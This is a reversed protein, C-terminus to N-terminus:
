RARRCSSASPRAAGPPVKWLGGDHSEGLLSDRDIELVYLTGDRGFDLDIVNTFGTAYDTREGTDPSGRPVGQRRRSRSRSAPSSASTTPATPARSSARRSPRCRSPPAAGSRAHRRQPVPQLVSLRRRPALPAAAHQRRRRGRAPAPRRGARRGRQQRDAPQRGPRGRQQRARLALHRRDPPRGWRAAAQARARLAEFIPEEAVLTPDRLVLEPPTGRTPGTPGGNTVYVSRHAAFIGHPGIASDGTAPAFSALGTM